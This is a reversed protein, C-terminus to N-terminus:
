TRPAQKLGYLAKKLKNVKTENGKEIFGKPQAVYVEEQLDKNLFASKVNFQYVLWQLQTALTLVIRVMEFRAVLSFTEEFDVGYKQAYSIANKDEALDVMEWTRNKEISEMEEMMEKQWEENDTTEEYYLPDSISKGSKEDLKRRAHSNVLAYAVCGSIRLHNVNPKMSRAMEEVIRNKRKAVGNQELTYPITLDKCIGNNKCFLNFEKPVFEGERDTRLVKIHCGSQNEVM